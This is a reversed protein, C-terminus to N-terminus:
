LANKEKIAGFPCIKVCLACNVCLDAKIVAINPMIIANQPCVAVCTGCGDCKNEIIEPM